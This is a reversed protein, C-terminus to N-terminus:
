SFLIMIILIILIIYIGYTVVNNTFNVQDPRKGQWDKKNFIM